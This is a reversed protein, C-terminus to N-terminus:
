RAEPQDPPFLTLEWEGRFRGCAIRVTDGITYRLRAWEFGCSRLFHWVMLRMPLVVELDDPPHLTYRHHRVHSAQFMEHNIWGFFAFVHCWASNLWSTRFVTGHVLEHVANVQFHSVMGYGYLLVATGWWPLRGVSWWTAAGFGALLTFYGFTQVAALLDSRRHLRKLEGPPLPTRYWAIGGSRRVEETFEHLPPERTLRPDRTHMSYKVLHRRTQREIRDRSVIEFM